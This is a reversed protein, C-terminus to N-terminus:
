TGSRPPGRRAIEDQIAQALDGGQRGFGGHIVFGKLLRHRTRLKVVWGVALFSRRIERVDEIPIYVNKLPALLRLGRGEEIEVAYPHAAIQNGPYLALLGIVASAILGGAVLFVELSQTMYIMTGAVACLVIGGSIGAVVAGYANSEWWRSGEFRRLESNEARPNM